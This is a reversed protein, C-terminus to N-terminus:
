LCKSNFGKAYYSKDITMAKMKFGQPYDKFGPKSLLEKVTEGAKEKDSFFGILKMGKGENIHYLMYVKTKERDFKM